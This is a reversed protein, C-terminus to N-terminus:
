KFIMDERNPKGNSQIFLKLTKGGDQIDEVIEICFRELVRGTEDVITLRNEKRQKM